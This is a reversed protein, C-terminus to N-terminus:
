SSSDLHYTDLHKLLKNEMTAYPYKTYANVMIPTSLTFYHQSLYDYLKKAFAVKNKEVHALFAAVRMYTTQPLENKKCYKNVFLKISKYTFLKDRETKIYNELEKIEDDTYHNFDSLFDLCNEYSRNLQKLFIEGAKFEAYQGEESINIMRALKIELSKLDKTNNILEDVKNM